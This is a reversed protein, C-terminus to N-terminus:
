PVTQTWAATDGSEFGDTFLVPRGFIWATGGPPQVMANGTQSILAGQDTLSISKGFNDIGHGIPAQFRQIEAWADGQDRFEYVVGRNNEGPFDLEAGVLAVGRRLALAWGFRSDEHGDSAALRQEEVWRTGERRFVYAAGQSPNGDITKERAGILATEG